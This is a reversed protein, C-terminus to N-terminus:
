RSRHKTIEAYALTITASREAAIKQLAPNGAHKDPHHERMLARYAKKVEALTATRRVGLTRYPDPPRAVPPKPRGDKKAQQARAKAADEAALRRRRDEEQTARQAERRELEARLDDESLGDLEARAARDLLANLNARALDLLRRGVSM